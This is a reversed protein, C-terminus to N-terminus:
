SMVGSHWVLAREEAIEAQRIRGGELQLVRDAFEFIRTDHTVVVATKGRQATLQYLLRMVERGSHADLSATPEDALILQPDGILARALAVRQCQGTSMKAPHQRAKDALGVAELLHMARPQADKIAIGRLTLPVCVNEVANLGRILQFKQFVFGLQDRRLRSRGSADLRGLDQGLIRVQGRDPTLISGLISLLTSKGSGSPGALFICEGPEAVMDIGCLVPTRVGGRAYAKHLGEVVITPEFGNM